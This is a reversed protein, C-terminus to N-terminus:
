NNTKLSKTLIKKDDFEFKVSGKIQYKEHGKGAVLIVDDDKAIQCAFEIAEKRDIIKSIKYVDKQEVGSEMQDIILKPDEFRPNDSTFIVKNSLSAAIKGMLPRKAKDRDGGCGIVTILSEEKNKLENLTELIKQVSDPSHAYDIIGINKNNNQLIREFRGDASILSSIKNLILEDSYEFIKALSYTALINYANFEGILKSWVEHGNILLKMGNFDKELIKLSFDSSSKLAYKYVKAKTNQTMYAGNKDDANIIAFSNKSLSNIFAKKVDRYEKFSKHYDLHDHSLNTFLGIDFNLGYIRHQDIAHSSVEMFCYEVGEEVMMSLIRNLNLPDPTTHTSQLVKKNILIKNTSILGVKNNLLMFLQHMLTSTTTKGNTGTIGILKLKSSPNNYFNSSIIALSQRSDKIIVYSIGKVIIKPSSECLIIKAGNDIAQPIYFNGDLDNGKIAVFLDNKSISRSNFEIKNFNLDTSGIVSVINVKYLIDKLLKM